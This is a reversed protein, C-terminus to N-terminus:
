LTEGQNDCMSQQAKIAQELVRRWRKLDAQCCVIRATIKGKNNDELLMNIYKRGHVLYVHGHALANRIHRLLCELDTERRSLDKKASTNTRKCLFRKCWSCISTGNLALKSLENETKANQSCFQFVDGHQQIIEELAGAHYNVDLLPSQASDINPARYQFYSFLQRLEGVECESPVIAFEEAVIIKNVKKTCVASLCKM